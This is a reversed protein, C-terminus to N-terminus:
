LMLDAITKDLPQSDQKLRSAPQKWTHNEVDASREVVLNLSDVMLCQIGPRTKQIRNIFETDASLNVDDPYTIDKILDIKCAFSCGSIISRQNDQLDKASFQLIDSIPSRLLHLSDDEEFHFFTACKGFIDVDSARLHLMCDYIYNPGYHDDDDIRFFYDGTGERAGFNLLSGAHCDTPLTTFIIDTRSAYNARVDALESAAGNFVIVLEKNPYTQDLYQRVSKELLHPRMTGTVLTVKPFPQWDYRIGIERCIVALRDAFTHHAHAERWAPHAAIERALPDGMIEHIDGVFEDQSLWQRVFGGRFDDPELAGLHILPVRCAAAEILAWSAQTPTVSSQSFSICADARKYVEPLLKRHVWGKLAQRLAPEAIRPVQVQAIMCATDIIALADTPLRGLIARTEPYKYLDTWGDYIIGSRYQSRDDYSRIPNFRRPQIAPLLPMAPVGSRALETLSNADACFVRDFRRAFDQYLHLYQSDLTMWFVTPIGLTRAFALLEDLRDRHEGREFQAMYWDGSCTSSASEILVLDVRGFQLTQKWTSQTLLLLEAEHTLGDFLREGLICAIRLRTRPKADFPIAPLDPSWLLMRGFTGATDNRNLRAWMSGPSEEPEVASEQDGLLQRYASIHHETAIVDMDRSKLLELNSRLCDTPFGRAFAETIVACFSAADETFKLLAFGEREYLRHATTDTVVPVLGSGMYELTKLPPSANYLESPVWGIGADYESMARFLAEQSLVDHVRVIDTLNRAEALHRLNEKEPGSGYMDLSIEAKLPAPLADIFEIMQDLKRGREYSGVYIFRKCRVMPETPLRPSFASLTVALPYIKLPGTYDPIWTRASDASLTIVLDLLEPRNNESDQLEPRQNVDDRALLPSKIDLVFKANPVTKRLHGAVEGWGAYNGMWVIDPDHQRAIEGIERLYRRTRFPVVHVPLDVSAEHVIEVAQSTLRNAIVRVDAHRMYAEALRYTGPTGLMGFPRPTIMLIRLRRQPDPRISRPKAAPGPAPTAPSVMATKATKPDKSDLLEEFAPLMHSTVVSDWDRQKILELNREIDARPCGTVHVQEIASAFSDFNEEFLVARFGDEINRKHGTTASALVVLGSGLYELMKLSPAADFIEHPVWALGADYTPLVALLQDQPLSDNIRVVMGLGNTRVFEILADKEPGGGFMDLTINAKISEPLKGIFGLMTEIKRVPAYSGIFVFRKCRIIDDDALRPSFQAIKVGLPYIEVPRTCGPIWSEVDEVCRTLILDLLHSRALGSVEIQKRRASTEGSVLPSKIDLVYKAGPADRRVRELVEHWSHYNALCVIDPGFRKAIAAIEAAYGPIGFAVEHLDLGPSPTHVISIRTDTTSNAVVCVKAHRAYAEVLHYTGPTGMMGFPRPSVFLIRMDKSRRRDPEVELGIHGPEVPSAEERPPPVAPNREALLALQVEILSRRSAVNEAILAQRDRGRLARRGFLLERLGEERSKLRRALLAPEDALSAEIDRLGIEVAPLLHADTGTIQIRIESARPPACIFEPACNGTDGNAMAASRVVIRSFHYDERGSSHPVAAGANDIFTVTVDLQGHDCIFPSAVPTMVLEVARSPLRLSILRAQGPDVSARVALIRSGFRVAGGSAWRRAAIAIRSAGAPAVFSTTVIGAGGAPALFTFPKGVATTFRPFAETAEAPSLPSDPTFTLLAADNRGTDDEVMAAVVYRAGADIAIEGFSVEARSLTVYDADRLAEPDDVLTCQASAPAAEVVLTSAVRVSGEMAWRRLGLVIQSVNPPAEFSIAVVGDPDPDGIFAFPRGVARTYQPFWHLAQDAPVPQDTIFIVLAADARSSKREAKLLIRYRTGPTVPLADSLHEGRELVVMRAHTLRTPDNEVRFRARARRGFHLKM